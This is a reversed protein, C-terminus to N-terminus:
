RIKRQPSSLRARRRERSREVGPVAHLLRDLACARSRVQDLLDPAVEPLRKEIVPDAIGDLVEGALGSVEDLLEAVGRTVRRLESLRRSDLKAGHGLMSSRVRHSFDNARISLEGVADALQAASAAGAQACGLAMNLALLNTDLTAAELATLLQGLDETSSANGASHKANLM